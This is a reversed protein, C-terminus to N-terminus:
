TFTFSFIMKKVMFTDIANTPICCHHVGKGNVM